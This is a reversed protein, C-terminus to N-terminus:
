AKITDRVGADRLWQTMLILAAAIYVMAGPVWMILGGLQQDELATLAMWPVLGGDLSAYLPRHAFTLLAGLVGTHITTTFLYFIGMARAGHSARRLLAHWFIQATVLFTAHQWDHLVPNAVAANFLSPMHWGWLTVAHLVWATLPATLISWSRRLSRTHAARGLALRLDHPFAWVFTPLARGLVLLPAVILMLSEHQIMHLAFSGTAREDLPSMLALVLAGWGAAFAAARWVLEGRARVHPHLRTLGFSYLLASATLLGILLLPYGERSAAAAAPVHGFAVASAACAGLAFTVPRILNPM